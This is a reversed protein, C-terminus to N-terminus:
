VIRYCIYSVYVTYTILEQTELLVLSFTCIFLCMLLLEKWHIYRCFKCINLVPIRIHIVEISLHNLQRVVGLLEYTKFCETIWLSGLFDDVGREVHHRCFLTVVHSVVFCHKIGFLLKMYHFCILLLHIAVCKSSM